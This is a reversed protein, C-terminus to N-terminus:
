RKKPKRSHIPKRRRAQSKEYNFINLMYCTKAYELRDYEQRDDETFEIYGTGPYKEYLDFHKKLVDVLSRFFCDHKTLPYWKNCVRKEGEFDYKLKHDPLFLIRKFNIPNPTIDLYAGEPSKWVSHFEAELMIKTHQWICWGYVIDGGNLEKYKNVNHFCEVSQSQGWSHVDVYFPKNSNIQQCFALVNGDTDSPVAPQPLSLGRISHNLDKQM